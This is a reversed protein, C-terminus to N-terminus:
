FDHILLWSHKFNIVPVGEGRKLGEDRFEVRESRGEDRAPPPPPRVLCGTSPVRPYWWGFRNSSSEPRFFFLKEEQNRTCTRERRSEGSNNVSKRIIRQMKEVKARIYFPNLIPRLFCYGCYGQALCVGSWSKFHFWLKGVCKKYEIIKWCWGYKNFLINLPTRYLIIWPPHLLLVLSAWTRIGAPRREQLRQPLCTQM